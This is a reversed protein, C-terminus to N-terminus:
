FSQEDTHPNMGTDCVQKEESKLRESELALRKKRKIEKKKKEEWATKAKASEIRKERKEKELNEEHQKQLM